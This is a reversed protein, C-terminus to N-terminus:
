DATCHRDPLFPRNELAEIRDLLLTSNTLMNHEQRYESISCIYSQYNNRAFELVSNFNELLDSKSVVLGLNHSKVMTSVARLHESVLVPLGLEIYTFLKSPIITQIHKPNIRLDDFDYLMLGFSFDDNDKLLEGPSFGKKFEFNSNNKMLESFFPYCTSLSDSSNMLLPNNYITLAHGLKVLHQAVTHLKADKFFLDPKHDGPIGGIFLLRGMSSRKASCFFNPLPHCPFFMINKKYANTSSSIQQAYPSTVLPFYRQIFNECAEDIEVDHETLGIHLYHKKDSLLKAPSDNINCITVTNKCVLSIYVPLFFWGIWSQVYIAQTKANKLIQLELVSDYLFVSDFYKQEAKSIGWRTFLISQVGLTQLISSVRIFFYNTRDSVFIISNPSLNFCPFDKAPKSDCLEINQRYANLIDPTPKKNEINNKIYSYLKAITIKSM